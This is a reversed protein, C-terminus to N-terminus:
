DDDLLGFSPSHLTCIDVMKGLWEEVDNLGEENGATIFLSPRQFVNDGKRRLSSSLHRRASKSLELDQVHKHCTVFDCLNLVDGAALTELTIIRLGPWVSASGSANHQIPTTADLGTPPAPRFPKRFNISSKRTLNGASKFLLSRTSINVLQLHRVTSFSHLFNITDTQFSKESRNSIRLTDLEASSLSQGFDSMKWGDADLELYKINPMALYQFIYTSARGPPHSWRLSVALSRLSDARILAGHPLLDSLPMLQHLTLHKLGPSATFMQSIAHGSGFLKSVSLSTLNSITPVMLGRAKLITLKPFDVSYPRQGHSEYQVWSTSNSHAYISLQQLNPASQLRSFVSEIMAAFISRLTLRHLRESHQSLLTMIDSHHMCDNIIISIPLIGSRAIWDATWHRCEEPSKHPPVIINVWLEPTNQALMRWHCCVSSLLIPSPLESPDQWRNVVTSFINALLENPLNNIYNNSDVTTSSSDDM